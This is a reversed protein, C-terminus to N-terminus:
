INGGNHSALTQVLSTLVTASLEGNLRCQAGDPFQWEFTLLSTSSGESVDPLAVFQGQLSIKNSDGDAWLKLQSHSLKLAQIIQGIPYHPLRKVAQQRLAKPTRAARHTRTNRWQEYAVVVTQLKDQNSM